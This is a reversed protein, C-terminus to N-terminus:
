GLGLLTLGALVVFVGSAAKQLKGLPLRKVLSRGAVVGIASVALLATMGGIAVAVPAGTSGALGVIALQSLDGWEAVAIVGFSAVGARFPTVVRDNGNVDLEARAEREHAAASRWLLVAGVSFLGATATVTVTEPLLDLLSGAAAAVTVHLMYACATGMWVALPRHYRTVLVITAVMTKDPLEAPFVAAFAKLAASIDM